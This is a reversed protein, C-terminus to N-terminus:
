NDITKHRKKAKELFLPNQFSGWSTKAALVVVTV